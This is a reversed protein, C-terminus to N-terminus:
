YEVVQEVLEVINVLQHITLLLDVAVVVVM